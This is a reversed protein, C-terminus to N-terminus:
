GGAGEGGRVGTVGRGAGWLGSGAGARWQCRLASALLPPARAKYHQIGALVDLRAWIFIRTKGM